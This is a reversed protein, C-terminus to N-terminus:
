ALPISLPWPTTQQWPITGVPRWYVQITAPSALGVYGPAAKLEWLYRVYEGPALPNPDDWAALQFPVLGVTHMGFRWGMGDDRASVAYGYYAGHIQLEVDVGTRNHVAVTLSGYLAAGDYAKLGIGATVVQATGPVVGSIWSNWYTVADEYGWSNPSGTLPGVHIATLDDYLAKARALMDRLENGVRVFDDCDCCAYCAGQLLVTGSELDPIVNYCADGTIRIGGTHDPHLQQPVKPPVAVEECPVVGLGSGARAELTLGVTDTVDVPESSIEMNYGAILKVHGVYQDVENDIGVSLLRAPRVDIVAGAFPLRTGLTLLGVPLGALYDTFDKSILLRGHLRVTTIDTVPGPPQLAVIRYTDISVPTITVAFSGLSVAAQDAFALTYSTSSVKTISALYVATVDDWVILSADVFAGTPLTVPAIVSGSGVHDLGVADEQFPYAIHRNSTLYASGLRM